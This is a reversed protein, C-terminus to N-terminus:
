GLPVTEIVMVEDGAKDFAASVALQIIYAVIAIPLFRHSYKQRAFYVLMLILVCFGSLVAFGITPLGNRTEWGAVASGVIASEFALQDYGSLLYRKRWEAKYSNNKPRRTLLILLPANLLMAAIFGPWIGAGASDVAAASAAAFALTVAALCLGGLWALTKATSSDTEYLLSLGKAPLRFPFLFVWVLGRRFSVRTELDTRRFIITQLEKLATGRGETTLREVGEVETSAVAPPHHAKHGETAHGGTPGQTGDLFAARARRLEARAEKKRERLAATLKFVGRQFTFVVESSKGGAQLRRVTASLGGGGGFIAAAEFTKNLSEVEAEELKPVGLPERGVKATKTPAPKKSKLKIKLKEAVMTALPPAAVAAVSFLPFLGLFGRGGVRCFVLWIIMLPGVVVGRAIIEERLFRFNIGELSYFVPIIVFLKAATFSAFGRAFHGPSGLCAGVVYFVVGRFSELLIPVM